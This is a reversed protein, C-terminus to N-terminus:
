PLPAIEVAGGPTVDVRLTHGDLMEMGLIADSAGFETVQVHRWVGDWDVDAQYRGYQRISGDAMTVTGGLHGVLRLAAIVDAPLTIVGSNGTDVLVPVVVTGGGPGRFRLTVCPEGAPNLAGRIM